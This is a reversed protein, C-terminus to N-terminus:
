YWVCKKWFNREVVRNIIINRVFFFLVNLEEEGIRIILYNYDFKLVLFFGLINLYFSVSYKDYGM